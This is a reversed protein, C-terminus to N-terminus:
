EVVIRSHAEVAALHLILAALSRLLFGCGTARGIGLHELIGLAQDGGPILALREARGHDKRGRDTYQNRHTRHGAQRVIL